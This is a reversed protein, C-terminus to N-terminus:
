ACREASMGCNAEASMSIEPPLNAGIGPPASTRSAAPLIMPETPTEPSVDSLSSSQVTAPMSAAPKFASVPAYGDGVRPQNIVAGHAQRIPQGTACEREGTIWLYQSFDNPM